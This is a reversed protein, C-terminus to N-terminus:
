QRGVQWGAERAVLQLVEQERASLAAAASTAAAIGVARELYAREGFTTLIIVTQLPHLRRIAETALLHRRASRGPHVARGDLHAGVM